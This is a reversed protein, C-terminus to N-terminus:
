SDPKLEYISITPGFVGPQTLSIRDLAAYDMEWAHPDYLFEVTPAFQIILQYKDNLSTFFQPNLTALDRSIWSVSVLYKVQRALYFDITSLTETQGTALDYIVDLRPTGTLDYGIKGKMAELRATLTPAPQGLNQADIILGALRIESLNLDPGLSTPLYDALTHELTIKTDKAIHTEIWVTAERRTDPWTLVTDFQLTRMLPPAILIMLFVMVVLRRHTGLSQIVLSVLICLFPILPVVWRSFNGGSVGISLYLLGIMLVLGSLQHRTRKVLLWLSGFISFVFMPVGMGQYLHEIIRWWVSKGGATATGIGRNKTLLEGMAKIYVGSSLIVYPNTFLYVAVATLLIFSISKGRSRWYTLLIGAVPFYIFKASIALGLLIGLLLSKKFTAQNQWLLFQYFFGLIFFSALVEDKIYHSEKVFLFNLALFLAALLGTKRNCILEGIKYSLFVCGVSILSLLGRGLLLFVSPDRLYGAYMDFPTHYMGLLKGFLYYLGYPLLLLYAILTSHLFTDPKLFNAAAYFTTYIIKAEDMHHIQPLGFNLGWIRLFLALGLIGVLLKQALTKISFM